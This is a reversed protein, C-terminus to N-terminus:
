DDSGVVATAVNGVARGAIKVTGIVAGAALGATGVAIGAATDVVAIVACAQLLVLSFFGALLNRSMRM